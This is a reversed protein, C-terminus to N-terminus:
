KEARCKALEADLCTWKQSDVDITPHKCKDEPKLAVVVKLLFQPDIVPAAVAAVAPAAAPVMPAPVAIPVTKVAKPLNKQRVAALANVSLLALLIMAIKM